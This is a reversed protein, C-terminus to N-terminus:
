CVMEQDDFWGDYEGGLAKQIWEDPEDQLHTLYCLCQPHPRSPAEGKKWVGAGLGYRDDEAYENCVDPRPHSGSLNWKYGLVWPRMESQRITSEHHSNNIETRALRNAAYSSGGPVKPDFHQRVDRAMRKASSGAILHGEVIKGVKATSVTGNKYIRESLTFGNTRRSIIAQIGANANMHMARAYQTLATGPMGLFFDRDLAQDAALAGQTFMGLETLKGTTNWLETSIPGLAATLEKLQAARIKSSFSSAATVSLVTAEAEVMAAKLTKSLERGTIGGTIRAPAVLGQLQALDDNISM